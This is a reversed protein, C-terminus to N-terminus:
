TNSLRQQCLLKNLYTWSGISLETAIWKVSMTSQNRMEQAIRIKMPHGKPEKQLRARDWGVLTLKENILRRAKEIESEQRIQASHHEATEITFQDALRSLFEKAGVRWGERLLSWEPMPSEQRQTEM